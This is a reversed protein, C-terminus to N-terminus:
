ECNKFLQIELYIINCCITTSKDTDISTKDQLVCVDEEIDVEM